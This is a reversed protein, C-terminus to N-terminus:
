RPARMPRRPGFLTVQSINRREIIFLVDSVKVQQTANELNEM